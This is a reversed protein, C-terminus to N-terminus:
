TSAPVNSHVATLVDFLVNKDIGLNAEEETLYLDEVFSQITYNRSCFWDRTRVCFWSAIDLEDNRSVNDYYYPVLQIYDTPNPNRIDIRRKQFNTFHRWCLSHLTRCDIGESMGRAALAAQLDKVANVNFSTVLMRKGKGIRKALELLTHTKGSGARAIFCKTHGRVFKCENYIRRQEDTDVIKM